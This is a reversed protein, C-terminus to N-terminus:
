SFVLPHDERSPDCPRDLGALPYSASSLPLDPDAVARNLWTIEVAVPFESVPDIPSFNNGHVHVVIFHEDLAKLAENVEAVREDLYHFEAAICRIRDSGSVIDPVVDYEAGEIDMKLFVDHPRTGPFQDLIEALRIHNPGSRNGVWKKLRANPARYLRALTFCGRFSEAHALRKRTNGTFTHRIRGWGTHVIRRVLFWWGVQSDVGVARTQPNRELFDVDFSVDDNLGLSVLLDCHTIQDEPVAYGGDIERGLRTLKPYARPHLLGKDLRESPM